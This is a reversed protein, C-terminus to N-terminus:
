SNFLVDKITYFGNPKDLLFYVAKVAGEAFARRSLATHKVSIVEGLGGFYVTHEGAVNGLRLSSINTEKGIVNKIMLATGSPKDKKFRHHTESIEIDWDPLKEKLLETCKLLMQIGLSFNFSQVVPINKSVSKLKNLQENNLATTGNVFPVNFKLAYEVSKDFADPSSFDILVQPKEKEWEGDIDFSFVLTNSYEDMLSKIEKGMRGSTGILGYKIKQM